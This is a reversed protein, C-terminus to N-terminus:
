GDKQSYATFRGDKLRNLGNNTGVWLSGDRSQCIARVMGNSLGENVGFTTFVGDKYRTLGGGYTGIWLVGDRDVFLVWIYGQKIASTTTTDFVTFRDGDFRALGNLTAIWLYGDPTQAISLAYRQPLGQDADWHMHVYQTITKRPDLASATASWLTLPILAALV